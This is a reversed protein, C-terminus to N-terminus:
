RGGERAALVDRGKDTLVVAGRGHPNAADHEADIALLGKSKCRNVIRYGYDQSGHPGVAKAIVNMSQVVGDRHDVYALAALMKPGVRENEDTTLYSTSM